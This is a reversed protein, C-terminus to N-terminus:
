HAETFVEQYYIIGVVTSLFFYTNYEENNDHTEGTQKDPYKM